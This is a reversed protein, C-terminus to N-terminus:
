VNETQVGGPTWGKVSSASFVNHSHQVDSHTATEISIHDIIHYNLSCNWSTVDTIATNWKASESPSGLTVSASQTNCLEM